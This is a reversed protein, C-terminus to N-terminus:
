ALADLQEARTWPQLPEDFRRSAWSSAEPSSWASATASISRTRGSPASNALASAVSRRIFVRAPYLARGTLPTSRLRACRWASRSTRAAWVRRTRRQRQVAQITTALRACTHGSRHGSSGSESPIEACRLRGSGARLLRSRWNEDFEYHLPGPNSDGRRSANQLETWRTPWRLRMDIGQHADTCV